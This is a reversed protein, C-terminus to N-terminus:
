AFNMATAAHYEADTLTGVTGEDSDYNIGDAEEMPIFDASWAPMTASGDGIAALLDGAADGLGFDETVLLNILSGLAVIAAGDSGEAGREDAVQQYFVLADPRTLYALGEASRHIEPIFASYLAAIKGTLTEQGGSLTDFAAKAKANGQVLSNFVNIIANEQNFVIDPNGSGYNTGAVSEMLSIFGSISPVGGLLSEYATAIDFYANPDADILADLNLLTNM